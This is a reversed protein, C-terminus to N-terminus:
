LINEVLSELRAVDSLANNILKEKQAPELTRKQFTQLALKVSSLPSKLEHTISHLFNTQQIALEIEKGFIRRVQILGIIQLFLFFLGESLVMIRDKKYKTLLQLYSQTEEYKIPNPTSQYNIRDLQMKETFAQENKSFLLYGWWLSFVIIYGFVIYFLLFPSKGFLKLM